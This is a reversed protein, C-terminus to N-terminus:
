ESRKKVFTLQRDLYWDTEGGDDWTVLVEHPNIDSVEMVVGTDFRGNDTYFVVDNVSLFEKM